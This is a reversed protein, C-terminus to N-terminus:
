SAKPERNTLVHLLIMGLGVVLLVDAINFVPWPYDIVPITVFIFDRVEGTVVRGDPLAVKAIVRDYLNGAAGGLVMGLGAHLGWFRRGAGAFLVAVAGMALM